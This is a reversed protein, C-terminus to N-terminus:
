EKKTANILDFYENWREERVPMPTRDCFFLVLALAINNWKTVIKYDVLKGQKIKTKAIVHYNYYSM